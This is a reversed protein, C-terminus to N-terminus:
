ELWSLLVGFFPSRFSEQPPLPECHSLGSSSKDCRDVWRTLTDLLTFIAHISMHSRANNHVRFASMGAAEIMHLTRGKQNVEQGSSPSASLGSLVTSIELLLEEMIQERREQPKAHAAKVSDGRGGDDINIMPPNQLLDVVLYPLLYHGLESYLRVAGRLGLFIETFPGKTKLALHRCWLGLWREVSYNSKYIPPDLLKASTEDYKYRASWFIEGVDLIQKSSLSEHVRSPMAADLNTQYRFQDSPDTESAM